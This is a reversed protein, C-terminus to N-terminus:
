DTRSQHGLANLKIAADRDFLRQAHVYARGLSEVGLVLIPCQRAAQSPKRDRRERCAAAAALRCRPAVHRRLTADRRWYRGITDALVTQRARVCLIPSETQGALAMVERLPSGVGAARLLRRTQVRPSWVVDRAADAPRGVPELRCRRRYGAHLCGSTPTHRGANRQLV